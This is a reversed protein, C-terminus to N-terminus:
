RGRLYQELDGIAFAKAATTLAEKNSDGSLEFKLSSGGDLVVTLEASNNTADPMFNTTRGDIRFSEAGPQNAGMMAAMAGFAALGGLAQNGGGTAASILSVNLTQNGKQYGREITTMGMVSNSIAEGSSTFDGLSDPFLSQIKKSHETELKKQVWSLEELARAYHGQESAETVNKILTTLDEASAASAFVLSVISYLMFNVWRM